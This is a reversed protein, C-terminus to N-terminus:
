QWHFLWENLLLTSLDRIQDPLKLTVQQKQRLDFYSQEAWLRTTIGFESDHCKQFFFVKV